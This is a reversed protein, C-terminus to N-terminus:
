QEVGQVAFQAGLGQLGWDTSAFDIMDFRALADTAVQTFVLQMQQLWTRTADLGEWQVIYRACAEFTDKGGHGATHYRRGNHQQLATAIEPCVDHRLVCNHPSYILYQYEQGGTDGRTILAEHLDGQEVPQGCIPCQSHLGSGLFYVGRSVVLTRKLLYRSRESYTVVKAM